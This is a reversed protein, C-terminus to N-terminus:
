RSRGTLEALVARAERLNPTGHGETFWGCTEALMQRAQAARGQRRWLRSLGVAARLELSRAGQRRAIELATKFSAEADEASGGRAAVLLDGQLRYLDAQHMAEGTAHTLALAERVVALAEGTEGRRRHVDALLACFYPRGLEQGVARLRDMGARIEALGEDARGEQAAAWGHVMAGMAEFQPIAHARAFGVLAEAEALAPGPEGRLQHIFATWFRAFVVGFPYTFELAIRRAERVRELAQDPHGLYWLALAAWCHCLVQPDDGYQFILTRHRAPDYLALGDEAHRLAPAFEGQFFLSGGQMMHAVLTLGADGSAAALRLLEEASTRKREIPSRGFYFRSLGVVVPFLLPTEGIRRCLARAREYTERVEPATYGRTMMLPVALAVRLAAEQEARGATDPWTEVLWLARTLLDIAERTGGRQVANEAARRLYHIARRGDRGREFHAALEAAVEGAQGGHAAELGEGVRRHLSVRRAPGLREYLAKQHLAHAFAFRGAVTGDPLLETGRAVLFHGRRALAECAEEVRERPEGLGAAVATTSFEAGAVSAVELLRQAAPALRDVQQDILQRLDDPMSAALDELRGRVHWRGAIAAIVGRAALDDVMTVMFLPHGDTSRHIIRALERPEGSAGAQPGLRATLYEAVEGDTLGRLALEACRGRAKLEQQLARLPHDGADAPRCTAVVLLRAPEPRRALYALLDLSSYDAWQADEIWLLVPREAALAELAEAMERLMRERPAGLVRRQLTELEEDDVLASLQLLWTPAWRRLARVLADGGPERGLRGLAELVPLYAEGAAHQEVCQGRARCLDGHAGLEGWFADVLATKGIGPEGTVFVFQREGGLARGLLGHLRALEADRGVLLRSAGAAPAERPGRGAPPALAVRAIFRWGRRPITEILRPRGADDELLQRLEYVSKKPLGEAGHTAPWVAALLDARTVLEGAHEVLYALVAFTKPRVPVAREGHWLQQNVPDLCFPPFLLRHRRGARGGPSPHSDAGHPGM